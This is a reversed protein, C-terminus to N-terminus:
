VHANVNGGTSAMGVGANAQVTQLFGGLFSALSSALGDAYQGAGAGTTAAAASISSSTSTATPPAGLGDERLAQFLAHVFGHVSQSQGATAPAVAAAAGATGSGTASAGNAGAGNAAATPAAAISGILQELSQLLNGLLSAGAGGGAAAVGGGSADNDGDSDGGAPKVSQTGLLPILTSQRTIASINSM